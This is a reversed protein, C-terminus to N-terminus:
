GRGFRATHCEMTHEWLAPYYGMMPGFPSFARSFLFGASGIVIASVLQALVGLLGLWFAAPNAPTISKILKRGEVVPLKKVNAETMLRAASETRENPKTNVLSRSMVSRVMTTEYDLGRAVTRSIDGETIIGAPKEKVMVVLSGIKSNAMSRAADRVTTEPSTM